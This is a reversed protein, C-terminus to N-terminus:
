QASSMLTSRACSLTVKRWDNRQSEHFSSQFVFCRLSAGTLGTSLYLTTYTKLLDATLNATPPGGGARPATKGSGAADTIAYGLLAPLQASLLILSFVSLIALRRRLRGQRRARSRLETEEHVNGPLM